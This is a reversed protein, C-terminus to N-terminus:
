PKRAVGSWPSIDHRPVFSGEDPRWRHPQVLGPEILELGDFFRSTEERSRFRVQDARGQRENLGAGMKAMIEAHVDSAPHSLVLYSGPVVADMLRTVLRYPDDEDGILQLIALLMVGAPQGFDLTKAAEALVNDLDRLDAQIYDSAPTGTGIDLFQRLGQEGALHRM